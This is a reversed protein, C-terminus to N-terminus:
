TNLRTQKQGAQSVNEHWDEAYQVTWYISPLIQHFFIIVLFTLVMSDVLTMKM